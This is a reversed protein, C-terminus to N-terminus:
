KIKSTVYKWSNVLKKWSFHKRKFSSCLTKKHSFLCNQDRYFIEVKKFFFVLFFDQFFLQNTSESNTLVHWSCTIQKCFQAKVINKMMLFTPINWLNDIFSSEMSFSIMSLIEVSYTMYEFNHAMFRPRSFGAAWKINLRERHLPDRTKLMSLKKWNTQTTLRKEDKQM